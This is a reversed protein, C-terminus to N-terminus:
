MPIHHQLTPYLTRAFDRARADAAALGDHLPAIVRVLAADSRGLRISDLVLYAKAAYESAITRGHSQYWYFVLRRELGKQVVTSNAQIPQGGDVDIAIRSRELPQWGAGPLCNMPSHIADGNSQSSYYAIFLDIAIHSDGYHRAVYDDARLVALTQEDLQYDARAQWAGLNLPLERLPQRVPQPEHTEVVRLGVFV